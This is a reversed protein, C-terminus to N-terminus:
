RSQSSFDKALVQEIASLLDSLKIPKSLYGDMGARLCMERDGILAHATMAIIPIQRTAAAGSRIAATAELGDMEPMSVDMLIVDFQELAAQRVAERGNVVPVVTHGANELLRIALTRNVLNDEALLIHAHKPTDLRSAPTAAAQVEPALPLEPLPVTLKFHFCSGQGPASDLEIQGGMLKVLASCISLGLGTGGFRRSTSADAQSFADFILHQKERPIGIGTDRVSFRLQVEDENRNVVEVHLTIHGEETFKIANGVLNILIQQLRLSDAFIIVPTAPQIELLVELKKAKGRLRLPGITQALLGHLDFCVADLEVRGAEIKSLDLLDNIIGLLAQASNRSMTVYENQRTSLETTLLLEAMGIIGNMPTRIEHSMNALFQSKARNAAVAERKARQMRSQMVLLRCGFCTFSGIGIVAAALTSYLAIRGLAAMIIAPYVLPFLHEFGFRNETVIEHPAGQEEGSWSVAILLPIILTAAWVLDLFDGTKPPSPLSSYADGVFCTVWYLSMPLFLSRITSSNTLLGRLLFLVVFLSDCFMSKNWLPGNFAPAIGIPTFYVYLTIWMLLMQIFDAWHLSDFKLPENDPQLFLTIGLPLTSLQFLVDIAALTPQLILAIGGVGYILFTATVLLWFYRGLRGSRRMAGYCAWICAIVEAQLAVTSLIPGPGRPGFWIVIATHTLVLLVCVSVWGLLRSAPPQFRELPNIGRSTSSKSRVM